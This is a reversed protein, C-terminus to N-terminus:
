YVALYSLYAQHECSLLEQHAARFERLMMEKAQPSEAQVALKERRMIEIEFASGTLVLILNSGNLGHYFAYTSSPSSDIAMLHKASLPPYCLWMDYSQNGATKM